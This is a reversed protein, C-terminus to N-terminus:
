DQLHVIVMRVTNDCIQNGMSRPDTCGNVEIVFDGRKIKCGPNSNIWEKVVGSELIEMIIFDKLLLGLMRGNKTVEIATRSLSRATLTISGKKRLERTMEACDVAGNVAVVEDGAQLHHGKESKNWETFPGEGILAIVVRSLKEALFLGSNGGKHEVTIEYPTERRLCNDSPSNPYVINHTLSVCEVDTADPAQCCFM